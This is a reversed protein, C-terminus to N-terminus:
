TILIDYRDADEPLMTICMKEFGATMLAMGDVDISYGEFDRLEQIFKIGNRGMAFAATAFRDAEYVNPGVVTLGVVEEPLLELSHPNYIHAGRIYNGSTAVGKDTVSIIKVIVDPKFPHRIGIKWPENRSNEGHVQIDGGADVYFNKFGFGLLMEAARHISWGKVLGSPDFIGQPTIMDFYGRTASKTEAALEFITRMDVSWETETIEGRNIRSIESTAKYTSFKEDVYEFYTFVADFTESTASLDVIEVTVPMGM